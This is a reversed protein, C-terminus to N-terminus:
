PFFGDSGSDDWGADSGTSLNVGPGTTTETHMTARTFVAHGRDNRVAGSGDKVANGNVTDSDYDTITGGTKTFIGKYLYMGGGSEKATNGSITGNSMTFTGGVFVGGGETATNGSITGGSMAFTGGAFVGGGLKATSGSITGGSMAFTGTDRVLVGGGGLKATNGSIIGDNMTFTGTKEVSVGGGAEATNGSIVGGNMIFTGWVAVGGGSTLDDTDANNVNDTIASGANMILAGFVGILPFTNNSSGRLTINNDLVLTVGLDVTIFDEFLSITRTSDTGRLTITINSKDGYSLNQIGISEDASVDVIYDGNSQANTRLWDLKAALNEGPVTSSEEKM